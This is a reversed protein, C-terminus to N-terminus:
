SSRTLHPHTDASRALVTPPKLGWSRAISYQSKQSSPMRVPAYISWIGAACARTRIWELEILVSWVWICRQIHWMHALTDSFVSDHSTMPTSQSRNAAVHPVSARRDSRACSATPMHHRQPAQRRAMVHHSRPARRQKCAVKSRFRLGCSV